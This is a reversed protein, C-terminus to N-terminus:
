YCHWSGRTADKSRTADMGMELTVFKSVYVNEGKSTLKQVPYFPLWAVGPDQCRRNIWQIM